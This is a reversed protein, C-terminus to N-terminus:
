QRTYIVPKGGGLPTVNEKKFRKKRMRDKGMSSVTGRKAKIREDFNIFKPKKEMAEKRRYEEQREKSLVCHKIGFKNRNTRENVRGM